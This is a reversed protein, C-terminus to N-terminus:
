IENKMKINYCSCVHTQYNELEMSIFQFPFKLNYQKSEIQWNFQWYLSIHHIFVIWITCLLTYKLDTKCKWHIKQIDCYANYRLTNHYLRITFNKSIDLGVTYISNSLQHHLVLRDKDEVCLVCLVTWGDWPWCGCLLVSSGAGWGGQHGGVAGRSRPGRAGWLLVALVLSLASPSPLSGKGAHSVTM